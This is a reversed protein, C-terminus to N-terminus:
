PSLQDDDERVMVQSDLWAQLAGWQYRVVNRSLKMWPPGHGRRRWQSLTLPTLQLEKAAQETTLLKASDMGGLM